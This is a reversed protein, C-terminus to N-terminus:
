SQAYLNNKMIYSYVPAPLTTKAVDHDDDIIAQRIATSSIPAVSTSDIYIRGKHETKLDNISDTVQARLREPLLEIIQQKYQLNDRPFIWLHAFQTLKDGERWKSLNAINDAGVIFILSAEPHQTRLTSLTDITYTPPIQWIEAECIGITPPSATTKNDAKKHQQNHIHQQSHQPRDRLGSQKLYSPSHHYFDTIALTLMNLRHEPNSSNQKLPSRSAPMLYANISAKNLLTSQQHKSYTESQNLQSLTPTNSALSQVVHTLMTLHSNHVPDFSGGLYIYIPLAQTNASTKSQTKKDTMM